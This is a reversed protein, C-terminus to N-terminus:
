FSLGISATIFYNENSGKKGLNFIKDKSNLTRGEVRFIVNSVPLYDINLSYGATQFGSKTGTYIVVQDEDSYYEGRIAAQIKDTFKYQLILVPSYWSNYTSTDKKQQQFGIDFGVTVGLKKTLQFQGYLNNFFRWRALSDPQENGAYTSWNFLVTKRPKCTLQTGFAPTNNNPIRQIRQWGNLYMVSIYVKENKMTYGLKVGTEYYPSNDALISRTLNWCDKGLASEFGIHSPFIGADLWLNKSKSIKMGVNAEFINKLLGPESALNYQSYTGAMLAFNGRVKETSYNARLLGMNLNVENHRNFSYFFAPRTHNSPQGFDYSYYVEAYGSITLAQVKASDQAQVRHLILLGIVIFIVRNM